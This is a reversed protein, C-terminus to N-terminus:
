EKQSSGAFVSSSWRELEHPVMQQWDKPPFWVGERHSSGSSLTDYPLLWLGQTVVKELALAAARLL